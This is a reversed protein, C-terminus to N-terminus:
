DPFLRRDDAQRSWVFAPPRMASAVAASCISRSSMMEDAAVPLGVDQGAATNCIDQRAAAQVELVGCHLGVDFAVYCTVAGGVEGDLEGSEM